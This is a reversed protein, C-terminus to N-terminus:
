VHTQSIVHQALHILPSHILVFHM